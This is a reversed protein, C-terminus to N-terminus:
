IDPRKDWLTKFSPYQMMEKNFRLGKETLKYEVSPKGNANYALHKKAWGAEIISKMCPYFQLSKYINQGCKGTIKGHMRMDAILKQVGAPICKVERIEDQFIRDKM